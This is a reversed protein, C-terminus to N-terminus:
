DAKSKLAPLAEIKRLKRIAARQSWIKQVKGIAASQGMDEVDQKKLWDAYAARTALDLPDKRLALLFGKEPGRLAKKRLDFRLEPYVVLPALVDEGLQRLDRPRFLLPDVRGKGWNPVRSGFVRVHKHGKRDTFWAVIVVSTRFPGNHDVSGGDEQLIGNPNTLVRRLDQDALFDVLRVYARFNAARVAEDANLRLEDFSPDILNRDHSM